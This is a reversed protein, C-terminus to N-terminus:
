YACISTQQGLYMHMYKNNPADQMRMLTFSSQVPVTCCELVRINTLVKLIKSDTM